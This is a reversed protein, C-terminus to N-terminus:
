VIALVIVSVLTIEPEVVVVVIMAVLVITVVVSPPVDTGVIVYTSVDVTVFAYVSANVSVSIGDIIVPKVIVFVIEFVLVAAPKVIVDM